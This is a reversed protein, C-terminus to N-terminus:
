DKQLFCRSEMRRMLELLLIAETSTLITMLMHVYQISLKRLIGDKKINKRDQEVVRGELLTELKLPIIVIVGQYSEFINLNHYM